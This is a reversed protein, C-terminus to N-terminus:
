MWGGDFKIVAGTLYEPAQLLLSVMDAVEEPTGLRGSPIESALATKEEETLVNNM